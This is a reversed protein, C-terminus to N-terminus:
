RAFSPLFSTDRIFEKGNGEKLLDKEQTSIFFRNDIM